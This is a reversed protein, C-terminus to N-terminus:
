GPWSARSSSAAQVPLHGTGLGLTAVAGLQPARVGEARPRAPDAVLNEALLKGQRVAHQANPVTVRAQCPRRSTPFPPTTAPPGRTPFSTPRRHRGAPRGPGPDARARRRPLDTHKRSWRTAANGATWVILSALRVGRRRVAGRPRRPPRRGHHELHVHAGRRELSDCAGLEGPEDTVEPLIRGTAEVLHFRSTTRRSSPIRSAAPRDGAVAARRVGRRRLVRRRRVHRDAAAAAAARARARVGRDFATLLRDRIAVAEEVHKM